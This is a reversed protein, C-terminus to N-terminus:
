LHTIKGIYAIRSQPRSCDHENYMQKIVHAIEYAGTLPIALNNVVLLIFIIKMWRHISFFFSMM